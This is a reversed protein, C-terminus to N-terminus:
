ITRWAVARQDGFRDGFKARSSAFQFPPQRAQAFSIGKIM